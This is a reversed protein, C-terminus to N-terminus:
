LCSGECSGGGRRTGGSGKMTMTRVFDGDECNPIGDGDADQLSLQCNGTRQQDCDGSGKFGGGAVAVAGFALLSVLTLAVIWNRLKHM